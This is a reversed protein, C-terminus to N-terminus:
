LRIIGENPAGAERWRELAAVRDPLSALEGFMGKMQANQDNRGRAYFATVLESLEKSMTTVYGPADDDGTYVDESVVGAHYLWTILQIRADAESFVLKM